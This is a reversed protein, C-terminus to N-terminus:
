YFFYILLRKALQKIHVIAWAGRLTRGRKALTKLTSSRLAQEDTQAKTRKVINAFATRRMPEACKPTNHPYSAKTLLPFIKRPHKRQKYLSSRVGIDGKHVSHFSKVCLLHRLVWYM